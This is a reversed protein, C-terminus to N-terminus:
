VHSPPSTTLASLRPLSSHGHVRKLEKVIIKHDHFVDLPQDSRGRMCPANSWANLRRNYQYFRVSRRVVSMGFMTGSTAERALSNLRESYNTLQELAADHGETTIEVVLLKMEVGGMAHMVVMEAFTDAAAEMEYRSKRHIWFGKHFLFAWQLLIELAERILGVEPM